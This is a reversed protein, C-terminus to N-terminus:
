GEKVTEKIIKKLKESKLAFAVNAELFGEVGGVDFRRGEFEYAYVNQRRAMLDIASPLYVEGKVAPTISIYDFIDNTLVFRGLSTLNSPLKESSPKEVFGKIRTYRGKAEAPVMVGYKRAEDGPVIQVGVIAAGTTEYASILQGTVPKDPSYMVDDPFLVAFNDKGIFERCLEVAKATGRMESQRVFYFEARGKFPNILGLKDRKDAKILADELEPRTDLYDVIAQKGRSVVICIETIGSQICEEIVYDVAPRDLIPLMEKPVAKTIPLHRTGFGAAPIIAKRISKM